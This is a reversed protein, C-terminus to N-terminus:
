RRWSPTGSCTWAARDRGAEVHLAPALQAVAAPAGSLARAAALATVPGGTVHEVTRFPMGNSWIIATWHYGDLGGDTPHVTWQTYGSGYRAEWGHHGSRHVTGCHKPGFPDAVTYTEADTRTETATM